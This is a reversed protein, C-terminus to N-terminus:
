RHPHARGSRLTGFSTGVLGGAFQPTTDAVAPEAGVAIVATGVAAAFVEKLGLQRGGEVRKRPPPELPQGCRTVREASPEENLRPPCDVPSIGAPRSPAQGNRSLTPSPGFKAVRADGGAPWPRPQDYCPGAALRGPAHIIGANEIVSFPARRLSTRNSGGRQGAVNFGELHPFLGTAVLDHDGGASGGTM